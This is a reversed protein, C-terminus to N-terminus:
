IRSILQFRSSDYVRECTQPIRSRTLSFVKRNTPESVSDFIDEGDLTAPHDASHAAASNWTAVFLIPM